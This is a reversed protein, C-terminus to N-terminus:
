FMEGDPLNSIEVGGNGDSTWTITGNDVDISASEKNVSVNELSIGEGATIEIVANAVENEGSVDYKDIVIKSKAYEDVMTVKNGDISDSVGGVTFGNDDRTVIKDVVVGDKVIFYISEAIEYGDPAQVETLEYVGDELATEIYTPEVYTQVSTETVPKGEEDTGSVVTVVTTETKTKWSTVATTVEAESATINGDNDVSITGVKDLKLEAGAIENGSIDVKSIRIQPKNKVSLTYTKNFESYDVILAEDTEPETEPEDPVEPEIIEFNPFVADKIVTTNWAEVGFETIDSFNETGLIRCIESPTLSIKVETSQFSINYSGQRESSYCNAPLYSDSKQTYASGNVMGTFHANGYGMEGSGTNFTFELIVDDNDIMEQTVKALGTQNLSVTKQTISIGEGYDPFIIPTGQSVSTDGNTYVRVSVVTLGAGYDTSNQIKFRGIDSPIDVFTAVGGIIEATKANLGDHEYLVLSGSSPSSVEIEIKSAGSASGEAWIQTGSPNAVTFEVYDPLGATIVGNKDVTFYMDETEAHYGTPAAKERLFYTGAQIYGRKVYDNSLNKFEQNDLLNEGGEISNWTFIPTETDNASYLEIEAGALSKSTDFMDVKNLALKAGSIEYNYMKIVRSAADSAALDIVNWGDPLPNSVTFNGGFGASAIPFNVAGEGHEAYGYYLKGDYVFLLIDQAAEYEATTPTATEQIRYVNTFTQTANFGGTSSPTMTVLKTHDIVTSSPQNNWIWIDLDDDTSTFDYSTTMGTWLNGTVNRRVTGLSMVIEAGKLPKGNEDVKKFTLGESDTIDFTFETDDTDFDSMLDIETNIIENNFTVLYQNSEPDIDIFGFEVDEVKTGNLYANKDADFTYLQKNVEYKNKTIDIPSYVTNKVTESYTDDSYVNFEVSKVFSVKDTDMIEESYTVYGTGSEDDASKKYYKSPFSGYSYKGPLVKEFKYIETNDNKILLNYDSAENVFTSELETNDSQVTLTKNKDPKYGAPADLQKVYYNDTTAVDFYAYGYEGTEGVAILTDDWNNKYLGLVAGEIPNGESDTVNVSIINEKEGEEPTPEPATFPKKEVTVEIVVINEKNPLNNLWQSADWENSDEVAIEATSNDGYYVKLNSVRVGRPNQSDGYKLENGSSDRWDFNTLKFTTPNEAYVFNEAESEFEYKTIYKYSETDTYGTKDDVLEYVVKNYKLHSGTVVEYDQVKETENVEFYFTEDSVLYGDPASIEKAYYRGADINVQDVGGTSVFSTALSGDEANYIGITAGALGTGNVDLKRFDISYRSSLGLISIPGTYPRYGIELGGTFSKAILAGSLHGQCDTGGDVDANPAFITGNFNRNISVKDANPINYLIRASDAHNNTKVSGTNSIENGNIYTKTTAAAGFNITGDDPVNIIIYSDDPVVINVKSVNEFWGSEPIDFYVVNLDESGTYELSVETGSKTMNVNPTVKGALAESRKRLEVFQAKVDLVSGVYFHDKDGPYQADVDFSDSVNFIKFQNGEYYGSYNDPDGAFFQKISLKEAKDGNIIAHAFNESNLIEELTVATAYDGSGMQYNNGDSNLFNGGVAVRGEADAGYTHMDNELFVCFQSAIGLAYTKNANRITEDLTDGALENNTGVLLIVDDKTETGSANSIPEAAFSELSNPLAASLSILAATM